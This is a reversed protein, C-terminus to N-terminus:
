VSITPAHSQDTQRDALDSALYGLIEMRKELSWEDRPFFGSGHWLEKAHFFFDMPRDKGVLDDAMDLIYKQLGRYQADVHIMIGAVVTYPEQSIGAEDFYAHRVVYEPNNSQFM